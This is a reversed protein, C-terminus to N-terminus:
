GHTKLSVLVYAADIRAAVVDVRDGVKLQAVADTFSSPVSVTLQGKGTSVTLSDSAIATVTGRVSYLPKGVFHDTSRVSVLQYSGDVQACVVAVHNGAQLKSVDSALTTGVGCTLQKDGYSITLSSSSASVVSGNTQVVPKIPQPQEAKRCLGTVFEVAAGGDSAGLKANTFGGTPSFTSSLNAVLQAFSDTARGNALGALKGAAYAADFSAKTSKGATDITLKGSVVGLDKTTNVVSDVALTIPGTLDASGTATGTYTANTHTWSGDANTCTSTKSKTVQTATFTATVSTASKSGGNHAVAVGAAVLAAVGIAVIWSLKRM